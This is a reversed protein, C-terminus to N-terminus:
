GGGRPLTSKPIADLVDLDVTVRNRSRGRPAPSKWPLTSEIVIRADRAVAPPPTETLGGGDGGILQRLRAEERALFQDTCATGRLSRKLGNIDAQIAPRRHIERIRNDKDFFFRYRFVATAAGQQREVIAAMSNEALATFCAFHRVPNAAHDDLIAARGVLPTTRFLRFRNPQVLRADARIFRESEARAILGTKWERALRRLIRGPRLRPAPPSKAVKAPPPAQKVPVTPIKAVPPAATIAPPVSTGTLSIGTSTPPVGISTPPVGIRSLASGLSKRGCVVALSAAGTFGPGDRHMFYTLLAADGASLAFQGMAADFTKACQAGGDTAADFRQAVWSELAAIGAFNVGASRIMRLVATKRATAGANAQMFSVIAPNPAPGAQVLDPDFLVSPRWQLTVHLDGIANGKYDRVVIATTAPQPSAAASPTVHILPPQDAGARPVLAAFIDTAWRPQDFNWRLRPLAERTFTIAVTTQSQKRYVTFRNEVGARAGGRWRALKQVRGQGDTVDVAIATALGEDFLTAGIERAWGSQTKSTQRPLYDVRVRYYDGSAGAGEPQFERPAPDRADLRAYLGFGGATLGALIAAAGILGIVANRGRRPRAVPKRPTDPQKEPGKNKDATSESM